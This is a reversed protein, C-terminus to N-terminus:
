LFDAENTARLARLEDLLEADSAADDSLRPWRTPQPLGKDVLWAALVAREDARYLHRALEHALEIESHPSRGSKADDVYGFHCYVRCLLLPYGLAVAIYEAHLVPDYVPTGNVPRTLLHRYRRWCESRWDPKGGESRQQRGHAERTTSTLEFWAQHPYFLDERLYRPLEHLWQRTYDQLLLATENVEYEVLWHAELEDPVNEISTILAGRLGRLSRTSAVEPSLEGDIVRAALADCLLRARADGHQKAELHRPAPWGAEDALYTAIQARTTGLARELAVVRREDREWLLAWILDRSDPARWDACPRPLEDNVLEPEPKADAGHVAVHAHQHRRVAACAEDLDLPQAVNTYSGFIREEEFSYSVHPLLLLSHERCAATCTAYLMSDVLMAHVAKLRQVDAGQVALYVTIPRKSTVLATPDFDSRELNKRVVPDSVARLHHTLDNCAKRHNMPGVLVDALERAVAAVRPHNSTRQGRPDHWPMTPDHPTTLWEAAIHQPERSRLVGLFDFLGPLSSTRGVRRDLNVMHITAAHLFERTSLGTFESINTALSETLRLLASAEEEWTGCCIADFPNM